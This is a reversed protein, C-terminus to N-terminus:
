GWVKWVVAVAITAVIMAVAFGVAFGYLVAEDAERGEGGAVLPPLGGEPACSDDSECNSRTPHVRTSM